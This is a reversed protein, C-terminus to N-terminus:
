LLCTIRFFVFPVVLQFREADTHDTSDQDDNDNKHQKPPDSRVFLFDFTTKAQMRLAMEDVANLPQSNRHKPCRSAPSIALAMDLPVPSNTDMLECLRVARSLACAPPQALVSIKLMILKCFGLELTTDM